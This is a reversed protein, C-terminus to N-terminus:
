NDFAFKIKETELSSYDALVHSIYSKSKILVSCWSFDQMQQRFKRQNHKTKTCGGGGLFFLLFFQVVSKGFKQVRTSVNKSLRSDAPGRVGESRSRILGGVALQRHFAAM